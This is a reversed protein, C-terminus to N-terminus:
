NNSFLEILTSKDINTLDLGVNEGTAETFGAELLIDKLPVFSMAKRKLIDVMSATTFDHVSNDFASKNKLRRQTLNITRAVRDNGCSLSYFYFNGDIVTGATQQTHEGQTIEAELAIKNPDIMYRISSDDTYKRNNSFKSFNAYNDTAFFLKYKSGVKGCYRNIQVMGNPVNENKFFLLENAGNPANTIDGSYIVDKAQNYYDSCWSITNGNIDKYSLDFDNTGWSNEWYIGVVSNQGLKCYTGMPLNGIFNKESTPCTLTYNKPFVVPCAKNSLNKVLFEKCINYIKNWRDVDINTNNSNSIFITGNRIVYMDLQDTAACAKLLRERISQMVQILKFNTAKSAEYVAVDYLQPYDPCSLVTEWFGRKMPKHYKKSLRAIKNIVRKSSNSKFSVFLKKYRNFISALEIMQKENLSKFLEDSKDLHERVAHRLERNKIIMTKGTTKYVIYSLLQNARTPMIGFEECLIVLAERNKISDINPAVVNTYIGARHYMIIYTTLCNVTDSKLAIGSKLMGMCKDYLEEFTCGQIIKYTTLEPEGEYVHPIYGEGCTFDTGYTTMYHMVQDVFLDLRSRDTIEEWTKYFTSNYKTTITGLFEEIYSQNCAPDILYGKKVGAIINDKTLRAFAAQSNPCMNFMGILPIISSEFMKKCYQTKTMNM